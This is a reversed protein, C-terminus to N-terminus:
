GLLALLRERSAALGKYDLVAGPMTELQRKLTAGFGPSAAM